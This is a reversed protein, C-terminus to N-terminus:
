IENEVEYECESKSINKVSVPYIDIDGKGLYVEEIYLSCAMFFSDYHKCTRCKNINM